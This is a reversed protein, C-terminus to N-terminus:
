IPQENDESSSGNDHQTGESEREECPRFDKENGLDIGCIFHKKLFGDEKTLEGTLMAKIYLNPVGAFVANEVLEMKAAQKVMAYYDPQKVTVPTDSTFNDMFGM